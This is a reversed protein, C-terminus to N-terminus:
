NNGDCQIDMIVNNRTIMQWKRRMDARENEVKKEAQMAKRIQKEETIGHDAYSM